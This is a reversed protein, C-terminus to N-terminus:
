RLEATGIFRLQEAPSVIQLPGRLKSDDGLTLTGTLPRRGWAQMLIIFRLGQVEASGKLYPNSRYQVEITGKDPVKNVFVIPLKTGTKNLYEQTATKVDKPADPDPQLTVMLDTMHMLAGRLAQARLLSDTSNLAAELAFARFMPNDSEMMAQFAAIRLNRDPSQMVKKLDEIQKSQARAKEIIEAATIDKAFVPASATVLMAAVFLLSKM